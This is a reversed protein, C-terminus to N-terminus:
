DWDVLAALQHRGAVELKPYAKYLHYGVTRPSLFLQAGIDRNSLGQAALRIVQLEQPTLTNLKSAVPPQPGADGTSRLEARAREAWPRAGLREFTALAPRLRTRAEAKRQARRLWEGFLLNTRAREFPRDGRDHLRIAERYHLEARDGTATLAACREAVAETWALGSARSWRHFRDLPEVAREPQGTRIAAEIRDPAFLTVGYHRAMPGRAAWELRDLAQEYRGAGIDLLGVATTALVATRIEERDLAGHLAPEALEYCRVEDGTLAAICALISRLHQSQNRQGVSEALNEGQEAHAQAARVHGTFLEAVALHELMIPLRAILGAQRADTVVDAFLDLAKDDDGTMLAVAGALLREDHGPVSDPQALISDTFARLRPMAYGDDGDMLRALGLMAESLPSGGVTAALLTAANAALEADGVYYSNRVAALLMPAATPAPAAPAAQLLIRAATRPSGQEFEIAARLSALRAASQADTPSRSVKRTLAATRRLDGCAMASEAACILRRTRQGPDGTLEGARELAAAAAAHDTRDRAREAAAELDAATADDTGTTAAARHWMARDDSGPASHTALVDALVRHADLRQHFGAQQLVVARALPHKFALRDNDRVVLGSQEVALLEAPGADIAAAARLVVGLEGTEEAAAILLLQAALADLRDAQAGFATQVRATLPLRAVDDPLGSGAGTRQEPTLALPLEELALPNGDAQDLIRARTAAALDPYRQELLAVSATRDLGSIVHRPLEGLGSVGQAGAGDRIGFLLVVGERYLRRAAFTLAEASSRDLWHADDVLCLVPGDEALEALISLVAVGVLFRDSVPQPPALGLAGRLAAAQPAPLSDLRDLVPRLLLHLGAFPLEAEHEIGTVRVLRLGSGTGASAAYDLLASKGIGAPGCLVLAASQGVRADAVLGDILAVEDARGYLVARGYRFRVTM